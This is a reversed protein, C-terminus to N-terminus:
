SRPHVEVRDSSIGEIEEPTIFRDRSLLGTDVRIFGYRLLRARVNEPMDDNSDFVNALIENLPNVDMQESGTVT